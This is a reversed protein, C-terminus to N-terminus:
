EARIETPTPEGKEPMSILSKLRGSKQDVGIKLESVKSFELLLLDDAKDRNLRLEFWALSDVGEAGEPPTAAEIHFSHITAAYGDIADLFPAAMRCGYPWNKGNPMVSERNVALDSGGPASRIASEPDVVIRETGQPTKLEYILTENAPDYQAFFHVGTGTVRGAIEIPQHTSSAIEGLAALREAPTREVTPEAPEPRCASLLIALLTALARM